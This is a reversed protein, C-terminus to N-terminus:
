LYSRLDVSLERELGILKNAVHKSDESAAQYESLYRELSQIGMKCGNTMLEAITHDSPEAALRVNTKLWSMRKAVPSPSKGEDHYKQLMGCLEQKLSEHAAMSNTLALHLGPAQVRHIVDRISAVGMEIGADCERLLRITDQEIM